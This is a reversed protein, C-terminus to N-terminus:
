KGLLAEQNQFQRLLIEAEQQKADYFAKDIENRHLLHDGLDEATAMNDEAIGERRFVGAVTKLLIRVDGWFTINQIYAIDYELKKEWSIANRGNCQALGTM